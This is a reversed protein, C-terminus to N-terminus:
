ASAIGYLTFTSGTLFNASIANFTLSTIAATNRWLGVIALTQAQADGVRSLSTKYISTNAYNQLHIIKTSTLTTPVTVSGLGFQLYNLASATSSAAASGNGRSNTYSYLGSTSDGNIIWRSDADASLGYNIAVVLDTYTSPISSFTVSATASGLTQTQIPVYTAGATM